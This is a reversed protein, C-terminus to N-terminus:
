LVPRSSKMEIFPSGNQHRFFNGQIAAGHRALEDRWLINLGM